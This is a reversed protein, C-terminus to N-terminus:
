SRRPRMSRAAAPWRPWPTSARRRRGPVDLRRDLGDRPDPADGRGPRRLGAGALAPRRVRGRAARPPRRTHPARAAPSRARSRQPVSGPRADRAVGRGTRPRLRLRLRRRGDDNGDRGRGVARPAAPRAQREALRRDSRRGRAGRRLRLRRDRARRLRRHLARRRRARAAAASFVHEEAEADIVLTRDGGEGTEGTEIVRERSTPHERLVARLGQAACRCAGLWDHDLAPHSTM